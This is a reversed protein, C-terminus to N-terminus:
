LEDVSVPRRTWIQFESPVDDKPGQPCREVFTLDFQSFDIADLQTTGAIRSWVRTLMVQDCFPLMLRYIEAGGVVFARECPSLDAVVQSVDHFVRVDSVAWDLSRTLVCNQRGPLPKGISDFTKRGMLIPCGMTLRKFRRLDTSLRWPLDGDKGITLDPTAAVIAILM